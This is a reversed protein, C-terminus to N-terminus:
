TQVSRAVHRFLPPGQRQTAFSQELTKIAKSVDGALHRQGHDWALEAAEVLTEAAEFYRADAELRTEIMSIAAKLLLVTDLNHAGIGEKLQGEVANKFEEQLTSASWLQGIRRPEDSRNGNADLGTLLWDISLRTSQVIARLTAFSPLQQGALLETVLPPNLGCKRAFAAQSKFEAVVRSLRRRM